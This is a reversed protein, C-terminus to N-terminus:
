PSRKKLNAQLKSRVHDFALTRSYKPPKLDWLVSLLDGVTANRVVADDAFQQLEPGFDQDFPFYRLQRGCQSASAWQVLAKLPANGGFAGCGWNGTAVCPFCELSGKDVPTFAALSKNLDRLLLEAQLQFGLSQNGGRLDLADMALVASMVSADEARKSADVHDGGFQLSFAYGNYSSFQEAGVIQIAEEALMCPCMLMSLCLEPCIAFRIEEQVCGGSLVGGGIFMNAFDAHALEPASEFGQLMPALEIKLLPKQSNLWDQEGLSVGVLRDITIMGQLPTGVIRRFFNVFMQLKASEQPHLGQDSLLSVFSPSNMANGSKMKEFMYDFTNLFMNALLSAGLERTIRQQARKGQQLMYLPQDQQAILDPLSLARKIIDPLIRAFFDGDPNDSGSFATLAAKLGSLNSLDCYGRMRSSLDSISTIAPEAGLAQVEKWHRKDSCPLPVHLPLDTAEVSSSCGM